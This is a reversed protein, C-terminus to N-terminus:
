CWCMLCKRFGVPSHYAHIEKSEFVVNNSLEKQSPLNNKFNQDKENKYSTGDCIDVPERQRHYM